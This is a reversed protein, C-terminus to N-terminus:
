WTGARHWAPNQTVCGILVRLIEPFFLITHHVKVDRDGPKWLSYLRMLVWRKTNNQLLDHRVNWFILVRKRKLFYGRSKGPPGTTLVESELAPPTPEIGPRPVLIGCAEHGFFWFMFCFCCQLLNLLSKLFPGCWFFRKFFLFLFYGWYSWVLLLLLEKIDFLKCSFETCRFSNLCPHFVQLCLYITLYEMSM